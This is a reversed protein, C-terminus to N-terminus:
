SALSEVIRNLTLRQRVLRELEPTMGELTADLTEMFEDVQDDGTLMDVLDQRLMNIATATEEKVTQETTM